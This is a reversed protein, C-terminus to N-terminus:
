FIALIAVVAGGGILYPAYDPKPSNTASTTTKHFNAQLKELKQQDLDKENITKLSRRIINSEDGDPTAYNLIEQSKNSNLYKDTEKKFINLISNTSSIEPRKREINEGNKAKK